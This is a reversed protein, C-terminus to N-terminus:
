DFWLRKDLNELHNWHCKITMDVDVYGLEGGDNFGILTVYQELSFLTRQLDIIYDANYPRYYFDRLYNLLDRVRQCNSRDNIIVLPYDGM